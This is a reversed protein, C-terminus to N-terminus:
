RLDCGLPSARYCKPNLYRRLTYKKRRRMDFLDGRGDGAGAGSAVSPRQRWKFGYFGFFAATVYGFWGGALLMWVGIIAYIRSGLFGALV